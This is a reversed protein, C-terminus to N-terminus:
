SMYLINRRKILINEITLLAYVNLPRVSMKGSIIGKVTM